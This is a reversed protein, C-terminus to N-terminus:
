RDVEPTHEHNAMEHPTPLSWVHHGDSGGIRSMQVGLERAARRLTKDAIGEDDALELVEVSPVPGAALADLLFTKAEDRRSAPRRVINVLEDAALDIEDGWRIVPMEDGEPDCVQLRITRPMRALNMKTAALVRRTADNRDTPDEALVFGARAAAIIGISGGGRYLMKTDTNKTPHRVLLVTLRHRQALDALPRLVHRVESDRYTNTGPPLFATLPDITLLRAGTQVALAELRALWAEDLYPMDGIAPIVIRERDAGAADLRPAIVRHPDDEANAVIVFSADVGPSGDPMARGKSVRAAIDYVLTSKGLGPDGDIMVLAGIPLRGPWMWEVPEAVLTSASVFGPPLPVASVPLCDSEDHSDTM